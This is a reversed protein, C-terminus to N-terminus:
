GWGRTQLRSRPLRLFRVRAHGDLPQRQDRDPWDRCAPPFPEHEERILRWLSYPQGEHDVQTEQDIRSLVPAPVFWGLPSVGVGLAGQRCLGLATKYLFIMREYGIYEEGGLCNLLAFAKHEALEQRTDDEMPMELLSELDPDPVSHLLVGLFFDGMSIAFGHISIGDANQEPLPQVKCKDQEESDCSNLFEELQACDIEPLDKFYVAMVYPPQNSADGHECGHECGSECGSECGDDCCDSCGDEHCHGHPDGTMDDRDM